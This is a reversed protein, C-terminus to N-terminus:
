FSYKVEVRARSVDDANDATKVGYRAYATLNKAAKYTIQGFTEAVDGAANEGGAYYATVSTKPMVPVTVKAVAVKLDKEVASYLQFGILESKQEVSAKDLSGSGEEGTMVYGLTASVKGAKGSVFLKTTSYKDDDTKVETSICTTEFSVKAPGVKASAMLNYAKATDSVDVYQALVSAPGVKGTALVSAVDEAAAANSNFFYAGGVTFAGMKKLVVVGDGQKGDVQRSPINQQGFNVTLGDKSYNFYYDEVDLMDSTAQGEANNPANDIKFVAKVNDTIKAKVGVEIEVDTNTRKDQAANDSRRDQLRYRFQGSVDVNKIAEELPKANATTLGAVAVAAVLSLKAIKKM